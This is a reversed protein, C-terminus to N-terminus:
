FSLTLTFSLMFHTKSILGDNANCNSNASKDYNEPDSVRTESPTSLSHELSLPLLLLLDVNNVYRSEVGSLDWRVVRYILVVDQVLLFEFLLAIWVIQVTRLYDIFTRM